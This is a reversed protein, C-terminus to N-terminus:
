FAQLAVALVAGPLGLWGACLLTVANIPIAYGAAPLLVNAAAMAGYGLLLNCSLAAVARGFGRGILLNALLFAAALVAVYALYGPM